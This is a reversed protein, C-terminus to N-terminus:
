RSEVFGTDYLTVMTPLRRPSTHSCTRRLHYRKVISPKDLASPPIVTPSHFSDDSSPRRGGHYRGRCEFSENNAVFPYPCLDLSRNNAVFQWGRSNLVSQDRSLNFFEGSKHNYSMTLSWSEFYQNIQFSLCLDSLSSLRLALIMFIFPQM